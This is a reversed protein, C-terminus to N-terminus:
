PWPLHDLLDANYQLLVAADRSDVDGDQNVDANNLGAANLQFFGATYQLVLAADISTVDGDKNVDGNGDHDPQTPTATALPGSPPTATRTPTSTVVPGPPPTNTATPANCVQGPAGPSCPTATATAITVTTFAVRKVVAHYTPDGPDESHVYVSAGGETCPAPFEGSYIFDDPHPGPNAGPRYGKYTGYVQQSGLGSQCVFKPPYDEDVLIAGDSEFAIDVRNFHVNSDSASCQWEDYNTGDISVDTRARFCGGNADPFVPTPPAPTPTSTPIAEGFAVEKPTLHIGEVGSHLYVTVQGATCADTFEASWIQDNPYEGLNVGDRFGKLSGVVQEGTGDANQCVFLPPYAPDVTNTGITEVAIDVRRFHAKPDQESCKWRDYNVEGIPVDQAVAACSGNAPPFVPTPQPTATPTPGKLKVQYVAPHDKGNCDPLEGNYGFTYTGSIETYTVRGIFLEHVNAIGAVTGVGTATIVGDSAANGRVTVWPAPGFISIDEFSESQLIMNHPPPQNPPRPFIYQDHGCLDSLVNLEAYHFSMDPGIGAVGDRAVGSSALSIGSVLGVATVLLAALALAFKPM